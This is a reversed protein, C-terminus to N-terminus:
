NLAPRRSAVRGLRGQGQDLPADPPRSGQQAALRTDSDNSGVQLLLLVTVACFCSM